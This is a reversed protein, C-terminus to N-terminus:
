AESRTTPASAARQMRWLRLYTVFTYCALYFCLRFGHSGDRWGGFQVYRRRFERLPQLILHHPRARVGSAFLTRAEFTAYAEQRRRFEEVTEFNIHTLMNRLYGAPGTLQAVEHVARRVDYRACDRRLLRLQYDPFWGGHRIWRGWIFNRRPVWYGVLSHRSEDALVEQVEAALEVPVREDADVFLVWRGRAEALAQNRMQSFNEFAVVALAAGHGRAIEATRDASRADLVVLTEDAWRLSDLCDGIFREEDRAIVVASLLIMGRPAGSM